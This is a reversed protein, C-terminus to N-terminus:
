KKFLNKKVIIILMLGGSEMAMMKMNCLVSELIHRVIRKVNKLLSVNIKAGWQIEFLLRWVSM